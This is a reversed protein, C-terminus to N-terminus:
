GDLLRLNIQTFYTSKFDANPAHGGRGSQEKVFLFERRRYAHILRERLEIIVLDFYERETM